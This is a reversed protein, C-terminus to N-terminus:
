PVLAAAGNGAAQKYKIFPMRAYAGEVVYRGLAMFETKDRTPGTYRTAQKGDLDFFVMAPTARVRHALAFAKETTDKGQFDKMPSDGNVDISYLLFHKRYYDQVEPQNLITSKMRACFPCDDMEFFLFVGKKGEDKAAKLEAQFDGMQPQFFYNEVDRMGAWVPAAMALLLGTLLSRM